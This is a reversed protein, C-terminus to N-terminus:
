AVRGAAQAPPLVFEKSTWLGFLQPEEKEEIRIYGRVAMDVLTAIVDRMDAREDILVGAEAPSVDKPPEYQVTVPRKRPDRGRRWWLFLMGFLVPLPLMLPWNTAFFGATRDIATPRAVLGHEM